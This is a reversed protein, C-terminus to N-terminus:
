KVRAKEFYGEYIDRTYTRKMENAKIINMALDPRIMKGEPTRFRLNCGKMEFFIKDKEAESKTACHTM